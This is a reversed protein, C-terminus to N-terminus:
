EGLVRLIEELSTKGAEVKKMGDVFITQLGKEIAMKYLEPGGVKDMIAKRLDDDIGLVEFLGMRGQYGTNSCEACGKVDPVESPMEFEGKTKKMEELTAKEEGTLSRMGACKPCVKRVLRQAVLTEMAPAVLYPEIGMQEFRVMTSITDNTHLTTLVLHGTIAAQMATKATEPDRIEGVMIVEPDHRLISRLGSAFDYGEDKKVETQEVGKLHYEVPDELTIIKKEGDNLRQLISYLTTSKGSGTPGTVILMGHVKKISKKILEVERESMGLDELELTKKGSDLLRLVVGEGYETPLVSIRVDVSRENMEFDFSGDQAIKKVNLKLGGKHKMQILVDDFVDHEIEFVEHLVGDLRMRLKVGSEFPEFHIDTAKMRMAGLLLSNLVEGSSVNRFDKKMSRLIKMEREVTGLKEEDVVNKFNEPEEFEKTGEMREWAEKVGESTALFIKVEWDQARLQILIKKAEETDPDVVALSLDRGALRFPIMGSPVWKEVPFKGRLDPDFTLNGIAVYGLGLAEAKERVGKEELDRNIDRLENQINM